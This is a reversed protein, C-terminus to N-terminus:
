SDYLFDELIYIELITRALRKPISMNWWAEAEKLINSFTNMSVVAQGASPTELKEELTLFQFSEFLSMFIKEVHAKVLKMVDAM